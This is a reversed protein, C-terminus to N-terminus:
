PAFLLIHKRRWNPGATVQAKAELRDELLTVEGRGFTLGKLEAFGSFSDGPEDIQGQGRRVATPNEPLKPRLEQRRGRMQDRQTRHVTGPWGGGDAEPEPDPVEEFSRIKFNDAVEEGAGGYDSNALSAHRWGFYGGRWTADEVSIVEVEDTAATLDTVYCTITTATIAVRLRHRNPQTLVLAATGLNSFSGGASLRIVQLETMGGRFRLYYCSTRTNTEGAVLVGPVRTNGTGAAIFDVLYEYEGAATEDDIKWQWAKLGSSNDGLTTALVGGLQQYEGGSPFTTNTVGLGSEDTDPTTDTLLVGDSGSFTHEFHVVEQLAM